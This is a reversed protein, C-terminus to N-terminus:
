PVQDMCSVVDRLKKSEGRYELPPPEWGEIMSKALFNTHFHRLDGPAVSLNKNGAASLRWINTSKSDTM